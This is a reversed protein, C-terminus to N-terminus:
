EFLWGTTPLSKLLATLSPAQFVAASWDEATIDLLVLNAGGDRFDYTLMERSGDGGIVLAGPFRSQIEGAENIPIIQDAPYLQLFAVEGFFKEMSRQTLLFDRYDDPLRAGVYNELTKVEADTAM